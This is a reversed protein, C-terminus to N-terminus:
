ASSPNNRSFLRKAAAEFEEKSIVGDGNIDVAEFAEALVQESLPDNSIHQQAMMRLVRRLSTGPGQINIALHSAVAALFNFDASGFKGNGKKNIVELVAIVDNDAGIVPYCLVSKVDEGYRQPDKYPSTALNAIHIPEGTRVVHGLVGKNIPARQPAIKDSVKTYLQRRAKDVLLLSAGEVKLVQTVEEMVLQFLWDMRKNQAANLRVGQNTLSRECLDMTQAFTADSGDASLISTAIHSCVASLVDEDKDTFEPGDMKNIVEVVGLVQDGKGLIPMCLVSRVSVGSGRYNTHRSKEFFSTQRIDEINVFKGTKVVYGKVGELPSRFEPVNETARTYLEGTEQDVLMLMAAEAGLMDSVREMVTKYVEDLQRERKLKEAKRSDILLLPFMGLLCGAVVGILQGLREWWRTVHLAEQARSLPPTTVGWKAAIEEVLSGSFVGGADSVTNGLAAAAMTSFGFTVCLTTDIWDGCVIMLMNDLFGFGLFPLAAAVAVLYLQDQTPPTIDATNMAELKRRITKLTAEDLVNAIERAVDPDEEIAQSVELLLEGRETPDHPPGPSSSSSSSPHTPPAPTTCWRAGWWASRTHARHRGLRLLVAHRSRAMM